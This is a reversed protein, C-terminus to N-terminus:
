SIVSKFEICTLFYFLCLKFGLRQICWLESKRKKSMYIVTMDREHGRKLYWREALARYSINSICIKGRLKLIFCLAINWLSDRRPQKDSEDANCVRVRVELDLGHGNSKIQVAVIGDNPLCLGFAWANISVSKTRAKRTM